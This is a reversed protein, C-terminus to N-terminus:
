QNLMAYKYIPLEVQDLQNKIRMVQIDLTEVNDPLLGELGFKRREDKTFATGKNNRPNRILAYGKEKKM